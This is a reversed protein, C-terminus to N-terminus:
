EAAPLRPSRFLRFMEARLEALERKLASMADDRNARENERVRAVEVARAIPDAVQALAAREGKGFFSGDPRPGLLLWGIRGHGDAELAVRMPFLPDRRDCDLGDHAGPRWASRWAEVEGVDVGRTGEVKEGVLLAARSARVGQMVADMVAAGIRELGATERLDGVLLPLRERMNHLDQQFRREAWENVRHHLPVLMVAAVGAGLGGALAGLGEGFYEEGLAEIIKESGAFIGLLLITLVGFTASRGIVADADYLRYRLLSVSLGLTWACFGLSVLLSFALPGWIQARPDDRYLTTVILFSMIVALILATGGAFGLLTWRLQQREVGPAVQRYRLALVAICAALVGVGTLNIWAPSLLGLPTAFGDVLIAVVVALSWRPRFRGDPFTLIALFICAWGAAVIFDWTLAAAGNLTAQVNSSFAGFGAYALYGGSLLAPVPQRRRGFLLVAAVILVLCTVLGSVAFFWDRSAGTIGAAHFRDEIDAVSRRLTVQRAPAGNSSVSLRKISGDRGLLRQGLSAVSDGGSIAAGEVALVADGEMLGASRAQPTLVGNIILRLDASEVSVGIAEWTPEARRQTQLYVNLVPTVIAILLLLSWLAVYIRMAVPGLSPLGAPLRLLRSHEREVRGGRDM